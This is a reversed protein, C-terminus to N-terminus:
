PGEPKQRLAKRNEACGPSFSFMRAGDKRRETGLSLDEDSPHDPSLTPLSFHKFRYLKMSVPRRVSYLSFPFAEEWEVM